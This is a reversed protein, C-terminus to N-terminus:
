EYPVETLQLLLVNGVGDQVVSLCMSEIYFYTIVKNSNLTIM